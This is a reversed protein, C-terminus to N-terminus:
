TQRSMQAPLSRTPWTTAVRWRASRSAAPIPLPRCPKSNTGGSPSAKTGPETVTRRERSPAASAGDDARARCRAPPARRTASFAAPRYCPPHQAAKEVLDAALPDGAPCLVFRLGIRRQAEQDQDIIRQGRAHQGVAVARIQGGGPDAIAAVAEAELKRVAQWRALPM